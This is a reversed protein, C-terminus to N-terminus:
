PKFVIIVGDKRYHSALDKPPAPFKISKLLSELAGMFAQNPHPKVIDYKAVAGGATIFLAVEARLFRRQSAPITEPLKYRQALLASIQAEYGKAAKAPDTTTGFRSGGPDGEPEDPKLRDMARDMASGSGSLMAQAAASLKKRAKAPKKSKKKLKKGTDLKVADAAAVPVPATTAAKPPPPKRVKRPLLSPDRKKGLRVLEVPISAVPKYVPKQGQAIVVATVIGAHILFSAALMLGIGKPQSGLSVREPNAAATSM